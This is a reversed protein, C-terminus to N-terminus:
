STGLSAGPKPISIDSSPMSAAVYVEPLVPSDIMAILSVDVGSEALEFSPGHAKSGGTGNGSVGTNTHGGRIGCAMPYRNELGKKNDNRNGNPPSAVRM